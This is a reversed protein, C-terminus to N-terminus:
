EAALHNRGRTVAHDPDVKLDLATAIAILPDTARFDPLLANFRDPSIRHPLSWLYRMEVLGRGMKWFPAALLLPAWNLRKVRLDKGLAQAALDAIEQISLTYGPFPVIEFSALRDRMDALAVAARALDPLYGWAHPADPDGPATVIGRTATQKMIIKDLWNGSPATDIFDGVRLVITQVGSHRYAAEMDIRIRGLPNTAAHPTAAEFVPPANKGYVYVNGPLIVTAGSAKAAAIVQATLDPVMAAWDPYPPNWGNVIVDAGTAAAMLDDHARDFSRVRWGANWFADAANRGFRGNAGLILVTQTM